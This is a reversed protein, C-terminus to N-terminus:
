KLLKVNMESKEIFLPEEGLSELVEKMSKAVVTCGRGGCFKVKYINMKM